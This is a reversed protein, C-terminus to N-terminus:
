PSTRGRRLGLGVELGTVSSESESVVTVRGLSVRASPLLTVAGAPWELTARVGVAYGQGVGDGSRFVRADLGPLVAGRRFPLRAGAGALWLNQAPAIGSLDLLRSGPERHLWGLYAVGSREGPAAFAYSATATYRNGARFLYGGELRDHAYHHAGAELAARGAGLPREAAVQVFGENGPRYAAGAGDAARYERAAVYGGSASLAFPGAPHAVAVSAGAAGGSGWHSIAFPVLDSAVVAAVDLEDASLRARGTPLVLVGGLTVRQGAVPVAVRLETDTLGALSATSGDARRLTARAFASSLTVRAREGFTAQAVLPVTALTVREVGAATPDGFRYSEVRAGAAGSWPVADQAAARGCPAVGLACLALALRALAPSATHVPPRM